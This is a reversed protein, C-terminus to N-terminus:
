SFCTSGSGNCSVFSKFTKMVFSSILSCSWISLDSLALLGSPISASHSLFLTSLITSGKSPVNLARYVFTCYAVMLTTWLLQQGWDYSLHVILLLFSDVKTGSM